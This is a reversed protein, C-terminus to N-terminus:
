SGGEGDSLDHLRLPFAVAQGKWTEPNERCLGKTHSFSRLRLCSKHTIFTSYFTNESCIVAATRVQVQLQITSHQGIHHYLM